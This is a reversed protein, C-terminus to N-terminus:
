EGGPSAPELVYQVLPSSFLEGLAVFDERMPVELAGVPAFEHTDCCGALRDVHLIDVDPADLVTLQYFVPNLHVYEAHQM